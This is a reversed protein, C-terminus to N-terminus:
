KIYFPGAKQGLQRHESKLCELVDLIRKSKLRETKYIIAPVPGFTLRGFNSHTQIKSMLQVTIDSIRVLRSKLCM